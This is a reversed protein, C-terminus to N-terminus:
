PTETGWSWGPASRMVQYSLSGSGMTKRARPFLETQAFLASQDDSSVGTLVETAGEALDPM